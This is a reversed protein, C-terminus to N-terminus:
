DAHFQQRDENQGRGKSRSEPDQVGLGTEELGGQTYTGEQKWQVHSARLTRGGRWPPSPTKETAKPAVEGPTADRGM